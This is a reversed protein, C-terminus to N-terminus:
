PSGIETIGQWIKQAGSLKGQNQHLWSIQGWHDWLWMAAAGVVLAILIKGTTANM